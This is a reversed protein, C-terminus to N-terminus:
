SIPPRFPSSVRDALLFHQEQLYQKSKAMSDTFLNSKTMVFACHGLHCQHCAVGKHHAGSSSSADSSEHKHTYSAVTIEGNEEACLEQSSTFVGMLTCLLLLLTVVKKM